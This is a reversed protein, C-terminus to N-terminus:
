RSQELRTYAEDIVFSCLVALPVALTAPVSRSPKSSTFPTRNCPRLGHCVYTMPSPPEECKGRSNTEYRRYLVAMPRGRHDAAQLRWPAVTQARGERKARERQDAPSPACGVLPGLRHACAGGRMPGAGRAPPLTPPVGALSSWSRKGAATTPSARCFAV